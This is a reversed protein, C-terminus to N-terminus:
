AGDAEDAKRQAEHLRHLQLCSRCTTYSPMNTLPGGDYRQCLSREIFTSYKRHDENYLHHVTVSELLRIRRESKRLRRILEQLILELVTQGPKLADTAAAELKDVSIM